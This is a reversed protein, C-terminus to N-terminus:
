GKPTITVSGVPGSWGHAETLDGVGQIGQHEGIANGDEPLDNSNGDEALQEPGAKGCPDVISNSLENNTESGADYAVLDVTQAEGTLEIGAVGAFGDNSCILMTALSLVDGEAAEITLTKSTEGDGGERMIPGELMMAKTIGDAGELAGLAADPKGDEAIAVIGESPADGVAFLAIDPSHTVVVGPSFPQGTTTNTVTVEYSTMEQASAGLTLAGFSAACLMNRALSRTM